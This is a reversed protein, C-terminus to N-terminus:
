EYLMIQVIGKNESVTRRLQDEIGVNELEESRQSGEQHM